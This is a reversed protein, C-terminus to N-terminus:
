KGADPLTGAAYGKPEKDYKEINALKAIPEELSYSRGSDQEFGCGPM